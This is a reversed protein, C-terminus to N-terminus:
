AHNGWPSVADRGPMASIGISVPKGQGPTVPGVVWYHTAEEGEGHPNHRGSPPKPFPDPHPAVADFGGEDQGEGLLLLSGM